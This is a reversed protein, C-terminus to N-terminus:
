IRGELEGALNALKLELEAWEDAADSGAVLGAGVKAILRDPHFEVSRIAVSHESKHLGLPGVVGAYWGRSLGELQKIKAMAELTPTGAVAPTPHLASIIDHDKTNQHLLGSIKRKLHRVGPAEIVDIEGVEIAHTLPTLANTIQDRVFDNERACKKNQLLDSSLQGHIIQHDNVSASGALSETEILADNRKFLREPSLSFFAMDAAMQIGFRFCSTKGIAWQSFFHWPNPKAEQKIPWESTRALVVKPMENLASPSTVRVVDEQWQTFDPYDTRDGVFRKLPQDLPECLVSAVCTRTALLEQARENGRLVVYVRLECHNDDGIVEIRPLFYYCNPFNHMSESEHVDFSMGGYWNGFPSEAELGFEIASVDAVEARAGLALHWISSLRTQWYVKPYVDQVQALALGDSFPLKISVIHLGDSQMPLIDDIITVVAIQAAALTDAHLNHYVPKFNIQSKM